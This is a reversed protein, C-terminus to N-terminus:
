GLDYLWALVVRQASVGHRAGIRALVPDKSLARARKVGGLPTHALVRVGARLCFAVVGDRFPGDHFAGAGVEVASIPALELAERREYARATDLLTAGADLAAALPAASPLRMCGFGITCAATM